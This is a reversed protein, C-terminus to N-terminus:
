PGWSWEITPAPIVFTAEPVVTFDTCFSPMVRSHERPGGPPIQGASAAQLAQNVNIRGTGFCGDWGPKGRDDATGEIVAQVQDNNLGPNVSWVLAALGAVHPAAMSTGQLAGYGTPFGNRTLEVEYNPLTSFVGRPDDPGSTEGGPATVDVYSGANSYYAHGDEDNTAGVALVHAYAAPYSPPNGEQYENGSAAVVLVNHSHAYNVAERLADGGPIGHNAMM